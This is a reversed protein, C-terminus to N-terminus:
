EGLIMARYSKMEIDGDDLGLRYLLDHLTKQEERLEVKANFPILIEMELFYGLNREENESNYRYGSVELLEVHVSDVMWEWGSKIKRFYKEYGLCEFFDYANKEQSIDVLVEYESNDESLKDKKMKKATFELVGKNNRVRLAQHVEGPLHFYLDSKNVDGASGYLSEIKNKLAVADGKVHAKLEVERMIVEKIEM